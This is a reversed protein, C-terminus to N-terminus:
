RKRVERMYAKFCDECRGKIGKYFRKRKDCHHCHQV